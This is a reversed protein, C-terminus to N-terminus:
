YLKALLQLIQRQAARKSFGRPIHLFAYRFDQAQALRSLLYISYNCVYRGADYSFRSQSHPRILWNPTVSEPGQPDIPAELAAKRDRMLNHGRREIRIMRGRPCQGLGLVYDPKFEQILPEFIQAEFRVPLVKLIQGRREPLSQVIEQTLNRQYRGFPEFGYILIRNSPKM